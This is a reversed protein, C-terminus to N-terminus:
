WDITYDFITKVWELLKVCFFLRLPPVIPSLSLVTPDRILSSRTQPKSSSLRLESVKMWHGGSLEVNNFSLARTLTIDRNLRLQDSFLGNTKPMWEVIKDSSSRFRITTKNPNLRFRELSLVGVHVLLFNQRAAKPKNFRHHCRVMMVLSFQAQSSNYSHISLLWKIEWVSHIIHLIQEVM